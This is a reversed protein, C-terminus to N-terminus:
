ENTNGKPQSMDHALRAHDLQLGAHDLAIGATDVAIGHQVAAANARDLDAKAYTHSTDAQTKAIDASAKAFDIISAGQDQQPQQQGIEFLTKQAQASKLQAGAQTDDVKAKAGALQLQMGMQQMQSNQQKNKEMMDLLKAKVSRPLQSMEILIEPPVPVNSQALVKLTEYVDQQVNITDPGEDVIIDVDISGIANTIAPLGTQPDVLPNGQADFPPPKNIAFLKIAEPDDTVRIWRQAKWHAQVAAWVAKYVRFKWSRYAIIFPGLEAIGAQQQMQQAIGSMNEVGQGILAPNIGYNEIENKAEQLFLMEGQLEAGKAGDDFQPPNAGPPYRIVGDPRAAERRVDDIDVGQGDQIIIRRTSLKHLGRSRRFNIETQADKMNRHFGYRDGDQDVSASFMIFKPRTRGKNDSFPSVGQALIEAGTVLCWRWEGNEEYWHDLVRVRRRKTDGDFWNNKGELGTEFTEGSTASDVISQRKAPFMNALKRIDMWKAVGLFQADSFDPLMSAPDYYFGDRVEVIGIDHDDPDDPRDGPEITLEIGGIGDIAGIMGANPSVVNWEQSGFAYKLTSTAIEAGQESNPTRPLAQPEHRQKDILGVIANIKRGERNYTVVPQKRERFAEIQEKTYQSGHYFRRADLTEAIEESKSGQWSLFNRKIGELDAPQDDNDTPNGTAPM